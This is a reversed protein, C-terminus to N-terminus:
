KRQNFSKRAPMTSERAAKQDQDACLHRTGVAVPIHPEFDLNDQLRTLKLSGNFFNNFKNIKLM